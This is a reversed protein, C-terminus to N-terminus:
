APTLTQSSEAAARIRAWDYRMPMLRCEAWAPLQDAWHPSGPHGSAGGPVVWGSSDWDALDFVYRAVSTLAVHYGAAPCTARRMSRRATAASPWRPPNLTAALHPFGAVLPHQPRTVHLRGWAVRGHRRRAGRPSRVARGALARALVAPWEGGPPLLSRDDARIMDALRAKLQVMHAVGGGQVAAFAEPALPGLIPTMLDRTSGSASRPTSRRRWRTGTWSRPGLGPPPGPGRALAPRRSARRPGRRSRLRALPRDPRARAPFRPRRPHGGHRGRHGERLPDLRDVLRRTRFDPAYDLGIYHPYDAGAIRSNATAVFGTDPDRLAPMEDFPIAGRWEHEGTWGPVPTWANAMSRIPVQGRARYGIHGDVDAFVLNNVPEVWPRMAEELEDAGRAMLMPVFADFTSNAGAIATYACAIAHGHRPEGIVVPGHHTAVTEIEVPAGDRM